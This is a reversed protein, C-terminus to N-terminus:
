FAGSPEWGDMTDLRAHWKGRCHTRRWTGVKTWLKQLSAVCCDHGQFNLQLNRALQETSISQPPCSPLPASLLLLMRYCRNESWESDKTWTSPSVWSCSNSLLGGASTAFQTTCCTCRPTQQLPTQPDLFEADLDFSSHARVARDALSLGERRAFGNFLQLDKLNCAPKIWCSEGFFIWICMAALNRVKGRFNRSRFQDNLFISFYIYPTTLTQARQLMNRHKTPICPSQTCDGHLLLLSPINDQVTKCRWIPWRKFCSPGTKSLQPWNIATAFCSNIFLAM